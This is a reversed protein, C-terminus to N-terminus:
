NSVSSLHYNNEKMKKVLALFKQWDSSDVFISNLGLNKKNLYAQNKIIELDEPKEISYTRRLPVFIAYVIIQRGDFEFWPRTLYLVGIGLFLLCSPITMSFQGRLSSTLLGVLIGIVSIAIIVIGYRKSYVRVKM